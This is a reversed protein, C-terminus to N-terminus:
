QTCVADRQFIKRTLCSLCIRYECSQYTGRRLCRFAFLDQELGDGLPIVSHPVVLGCVPFNNYVDSIDSAFVEQSNSNVNPFVRAKIYPM